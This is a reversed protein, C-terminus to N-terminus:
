MFLHVVYGIAFLFLVTTNALTFVSWAKEMIEKGNWSKMSKMDDPVHLTLCSVVLAIGIAPVLGLGPAGKFAPIIFWGWMTSLVYGKTAASVFMLVVVTVVSNLVFM